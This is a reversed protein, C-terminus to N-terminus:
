GRGNQCISTTSQRKQYFEWPQQDGASPAQMGARLLEELKEREVERDMFKRVSIRHYISSMDKAKREPMREPAGDKHM